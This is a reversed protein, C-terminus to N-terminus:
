KVVSFVFSKKYSGASFKVVYVGSAKVRLSLKHLGPSAKPFRFERVLRGSVDFIRLTASKEKDLSFYFHVLGRSPNPAPPFFALAPGQTNGEEVDSNVSWDPVFFGSWVEYDGSSYNNPSLGVADWLAYISSTSYDGGGTLQSKLMAHQALLLAIELAM